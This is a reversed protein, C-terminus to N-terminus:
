IKRIFWGSSPIANADISAHWASAVGNSDVSRVGIIWDGQAVSANDVLVSPSASAALTRLTTWAGAADSMSKYGIQYTVITANSTPPTWALTIGDPVLLISQYNPGSVPTPTPAGTPAPSTGPQATTAPILSPTPTNGNSGPNTTPDTNTIDYGSLASFNCGVIISSM